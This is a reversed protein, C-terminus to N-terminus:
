VQPALKGKRMALVKVSHRARGPPTKTLPRWSPAEERQGDEEQTDPTIGYVVTKRWQRWILTKGGRGSEPDELWGQCSDAACKLVRAADRGLLRNKNQDITELLISSTKTMRKPLPPSEALWGHEVREGSSPRVVGVARQTTKHTIAEGM